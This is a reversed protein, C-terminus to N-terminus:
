DVLGALAERLRALVRFRAAHVAGVTMGLETAVAAASQGDLMVKKLAQGSNGPFDAQMVDLARQYLLRRCEESAFLEAPNPSQDDAVEVHSM